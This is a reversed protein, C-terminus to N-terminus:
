TWRATEPEPQRIDLPHIACIMYFPYWGTSVRYMQFWGVVLTGALIFGRRPRMDDPLADSTDTDARHLARRSTSAVLSALCRVAGWGSAASSAGSGGMGMPWRSCCTPTCASM